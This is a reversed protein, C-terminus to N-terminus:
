YKLDCPLSWSDGWGVFNWSAGHWLGSLFFVIVINIYKRIEGKRNGGLPIYLYDPFWSTLSVHWRHWFDRIDIALYPERFNKMLDFGMVMACGRAIESYGGFDAYIQIAFLIAGLIIELFGYAQYNNFVTKTLLAARDAIVLKLFFGWLMLCLGHHVRKFDWLNMKQADRIQPLLNKSREIPGAVLQPFFSVYLVYRLLNKEPEIDNRYIDIIYGLGSLGSFNKQM